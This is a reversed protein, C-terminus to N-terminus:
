DFWRNYPDGRLARKLARTFKQCNNLMLHYRGEAYRPTVLAVGSFLEVFRYDIISPKPPLSPKLNPGSRPIVEIAPPRQGQVATMIALIWIATITLTLTRDFV